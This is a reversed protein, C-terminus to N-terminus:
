DGARGVSSGRWVWRMRRPVAVRLRGPSLIGWVWGLRLICRRQSGRRAYPGGAPGPERSSAGEAWRRGNRPEGTESAVRLVRVVRGIRRVPGVDGTAVASYVAGRSIRMIRAFEEVTM